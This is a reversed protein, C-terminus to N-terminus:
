QLLNTLATERQLLEDLKKLVRNGALFNLKIKGKKGKEVGILKIM